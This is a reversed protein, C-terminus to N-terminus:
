NLTKVHSCKFICSQPETLFYYNNPIYLNPDEKFREEGTKHLEGNVVDGDFLIIEVIKGLYKELKERKM